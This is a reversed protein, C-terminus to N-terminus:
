VAAGRLPPSSTGFTQRIAASRPLRRKLTGRPSEPLPRSFVPPADAASAAILTVIVVPAAQVPRHFTLVLHALVDGTTIESVFAV